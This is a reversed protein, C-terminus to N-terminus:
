RPAPEPAPQAPESASGAPKADLKSFYETQRKFVERDVPSLVEDLLSNAPRGVLDGLDAKKWPVIYLVKPLERNGTIATSELELRDMTGFRTGPTASTNAPAANPSEGAPDAPPPSASPAPGELPAGDPTMVPREGPDAVAPTSVAPEAEEREQRQTTADPPAPASEPVAAPPEQAWAPAFPSAALLLMAGSLVTLTRAIM